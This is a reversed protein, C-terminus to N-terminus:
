IVIPYNFVDNITEMRFFLMESILFLFYITMFIEEMSGDASYGRATKICVKATYLWGGVRM